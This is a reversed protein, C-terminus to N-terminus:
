GRQSQDHEARSVSSVCSRMPVYVETANRDTMAYMQSYSFNGLVHHTEDHNFEVEYHYTFRRSPGPQM